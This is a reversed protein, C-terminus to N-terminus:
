HREPVAQREVGPAGGSEGGMREVDRDTGDRRPPEVRYQEQRIKPLCQPHYERLYTLMKERVECRLDWAAGSSAGSVLARVEITTKDTNTVQILAVRKDWHKSERVFEDLKTRMADIPATYDLHWIVTGTVQASKVTWNQFPEVTVGIGVKVFDARTGPVVKALRQLEGIAAGTTIVVDVMEGAQVQRQIAGASNYAIVVKHGTTREFEPILDRMVSGVAAASLVKLEAATAPVDQFSISIFGIVSTAAIRLAQARSKIIM